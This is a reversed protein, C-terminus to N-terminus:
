KYRECYGISRYKELPKGSNNVSSGGKITEESGYVLKTMFSSVSLKQLHFIRKM